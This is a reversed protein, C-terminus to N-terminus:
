CGPRSRKDRVFVSEAVGAFFVNIRLAADAGAERGALLESELLAQLQLQAEVELVRELPVVPAIHVGRDIQLVDDGASM